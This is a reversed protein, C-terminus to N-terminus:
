FNKKVINAFVKKENESFKISAECSPCNKEILKM